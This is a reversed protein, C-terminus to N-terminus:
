DEEIMKNKGKLKGRGGKAERVDSMHMNRM